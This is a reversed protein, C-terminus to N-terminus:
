QRSSSSDLNYRRLNLSGQRLAVAFLKGYPSFAFAKVPLHEGLYPLEEFRVGDMQADGFDVQRLWSRAFNVGTLDAGQFQAYDFQGESLDAGPIRIGRLDASNFRVGARVLTTIANAAAIAATADTKSHEIVALLQKEFNPHQKVRECLFQIVSSDTLFSRKFM